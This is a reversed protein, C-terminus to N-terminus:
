WYRGTLQAPDGAGAAVATRLAALGKAVHKGVTGVSCGMLAATDAESLDALYRLVVATRVRPSLQALARRLDADRAHAVQPDEGPRDPLVEVPRETSSLRRRWSLHTNILMRHVYAVPDEARRVRGWRGYAKTLTTQVLDEGLARDVALLGATRLLAARHAHVFDTFDEDDDRDM